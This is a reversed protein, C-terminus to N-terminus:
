PSQLLWARDQDDLCVDDPLFQKLVVTLLAKIREDEKRFRPIISFNGTSNDPNGIYPM